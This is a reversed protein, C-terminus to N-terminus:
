ASSEATDEHSSSAHSRSKVILAVGAAILLLPWLKAAHLWYFANFTQLIFLCGLLVLCLGLAMVPWDRREFYFRVVNGVGVAILLIPWFDRFDYFYYDFSFIQFNRLLFFAGLVLLIAGPFASGRDKRGIASYFLGLGLGLMVIPYIHRWHLYLIGFKRLLLIVGVCILVVGPVISKNRQSM